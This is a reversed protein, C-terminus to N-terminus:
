SEPEFEPEPPPPPEAVARWSAFRRGWGASPQPPPEGVAMAAAEAGSVHGKPVIAEAIPEESMMGLAEAKISALQPPATPSTAAEVMVPGRRGHPPKEPKRRKMMALIAIVVLLAGIVVCLIVILSDDDSNDDDESEEGCGSNSSCCAQAEACACLASRDPSPEPTATSEFSAVVSGAFQAKRQEDLPPSCDKVLIAAYSDRWDDSQGSIGNYPNGSLFDQVSFARAMAQELEPTLNRSAEDRVAVLVISGFPLNEVYTKMLDSQGTSLYTDFNKEQVISCDNSDLVLLNFGRSCIFGDVNHEKTYTAGSNSEITFSCTNGDNAGASMVTITCSPMPCASASLRPEEPCDGCCDCYESPEFGPCLVQYADDTGTSISCVFPYAGDYGNIGDDNWQGQRTPYGSGYIGLYHEGGDVNNPEGSRWNEYDWASDDSWTWTGEQVADSGGLLCRESACLAAVEANESSSHISALDHHHTRCYERADTWSMEQDVYVFSGCEEQYNADGPECQTTSWQYLQNYSCGVNCIGDSLPAACLEKGEAYCMAVAQDWTKPNGLVNNTDDYWGAFCGANNNAGVWRHCVGADTCCGVGIYVPVGNEDPVFELTPSTACYVDKLGRGVVNTHSPKQLHLKVGCAPFQSLRRRVADHHKGALSAAALVVLSAAWLM